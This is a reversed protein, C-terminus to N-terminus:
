STPLLSQRWPERQGPLCVPLADAYLPDWRIEENRGPRTQRFLVPSGLKTRVLLATVGLVPSLLILGIGSCVLDIARKPVRQYFSLPTGHETKSRKESNTM